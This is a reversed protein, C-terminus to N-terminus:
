QTNGIPSKSERLTGQPYQSGLPVRHINVRQPYGTSISEQLTGQPYQSGLPVWHINVGQPYGTSISERLTGQPYQSGLPVWYINVGQPYGTSISERQTLLLLNQFYSLIPCGSRDKCEKRNKILSCFLRQTRKCEKYFFPVNKKTEYTM